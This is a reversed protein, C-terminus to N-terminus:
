ENLSGTRYGEIDLVVYKFRLQKIEPIISRLKDLDIHEDKGLEIRAIDGHYRVRVDKHGLGRVIDEAKEIVSLNEESITTGYPFRSALCAMQPKEWTDLDFIKSLRRIDPKNLGAELLPSKVNNDQAAKRGPRYDDLDDHNSGDFVVELGEEEVLQGLAKFLGDKCYFCRQKDNVCFRDDDLENHDIVWFELEHQSAFSRAGSLETESITPSRATVCLCRDLLKSSIYALLASDTGGSFAVLASGYGQIAACLKGFREALLPDDDKIAGLEKSFIDACSTKNMSRVFGSLVILRKM